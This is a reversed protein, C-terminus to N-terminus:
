RRPKCQAKGWFGALTGGFTPTIRVQTQFHVVDFHGGFGNRFATRNEIVASFDVGSFVAIQLNPCGSGSPLRISNM